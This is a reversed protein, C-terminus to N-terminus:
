CHTNPESLRGRHRDSQYLLGLRICKCACRSNLFSVRGARLHRMVCCTLMGFKSCSGKDGLFDAELGCRQRGDAMEWTRAGKLTALEEAIAKQRLPRDLGSEAGALNRPELAEEKSTEAAKTDEDQFDTTRDDNVADARKERM